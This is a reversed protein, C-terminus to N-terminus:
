MVKDVNKTGHYVLGIKIHGSYALEDTETGDAYGADIRTQHDKFVIAHPKSTDIMRDLKGGMSQIVIFNSPIQSFDLHLSKTYAYFIKHPIAEAIQIWKNLYKQSYFDGSDHIRIAEVNKMKILDCTASQVFRDNMACNLNHQRANITSSWTYAGQKAYCFKTCEGAKPCTKGAPIGFGITKLPNKALKSNRKVWKIAMTQGTKTNIM